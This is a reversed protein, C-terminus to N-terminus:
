YKGHDDNSPLYIYIIDIFDTFNSEISYIGLYEWFHESEFKIIGPETIKYKIEIDNLRFKLFSHNSPKMVIRFGAIGDGEKSLGVVKGNGCVVEKIIYHKEHLPLLIRDVLKM